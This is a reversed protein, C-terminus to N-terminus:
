PHRCTGRERMLERGPLGQSCLGDLPYAKMVKLLPERVAASAIGGGRINSETRSFRSSCPVLTVTSAVSPTGDSTKGTRFAERCGEDPAAISKIFRARSSEIPSSLLLVTMSLSISWRPKSMMERTMMSLIELIRLIATRNKLRAHLQPNRFSFPTGKGMLVVVIITCLAGDAGARDSRLYQTQM